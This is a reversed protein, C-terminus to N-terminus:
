KNHFKDNFNQYILRSAQYGSAFCEVNYDLNRIPSKKPGCGLRVKKM